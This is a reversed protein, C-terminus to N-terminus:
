ILILNIEIVISCIFCFRPTPPLLPPSASLSLFPTLQTVKGSSCRLLSPPAADETVEVRNRRWSWSRSRSRQRNRRRNQVLFTLLIDCQISKCHRFLAIRVCEPFDSSLSIERMEREREERADRVQEGSPLGHIVPHSRLLFSAAACLHPTSIIILLAGRPAWERGRERVRETLDEAARGAARAARACFLFPCRPVSHCHCQSHCVTWKARPFDDEEDQRATKKESEGKQSSNFVAVVIFFHVLRTSPSLSFLSFLSFSCFLSSLACFHCVFSAPCHRMLQGM